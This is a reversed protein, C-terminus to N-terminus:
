RCPPAAYRAAGTQHACWCSAYASMVAIEPSDPRNVIFRQLTGFRGGDGGQESLQFLLQRADRQREILVDQRAFPPFIMKQLFAVLDQKKLNDSSASMNRIASLVNSDCRKVPVPLNAAGSTMTSAM